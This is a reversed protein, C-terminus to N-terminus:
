SIILETKVLSVEESQEFCFTRGSVLNVANYATDSNFFKMYLDDNEDTFCDGYVLNGFYITSKKRKDTIIM